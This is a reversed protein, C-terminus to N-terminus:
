LSLGNIYPLVRKKLTDKTPMSAATIKNCCKNKILRYMPSAALDGHKSWDNQISTNQYVCM